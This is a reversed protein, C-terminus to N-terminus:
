RPPSRRHAPHPQWEDRREAIKSRRTTRRRSRRRRALAPPTRLPGPAPTLRPAPATSGAGTIVITSRALAAVPQGRFRQRLEGLHTVQEGAGRTLRGFLRLGASSCATPCARRAGDLWISSPRRRSAGVLTVLIRSKCGEARAAPRDLVDIASSARRSQLARTMALQDPALLSLASHWRGITGIALHLRGDRWRGLGLALPLTPKASGLAYVIRKMRIRSMPPPSRSRGPRCTRTCRPRRVSGRCRGALDLVVWLLDQEIRDLRRDVPQVPDLVLGPVDAEPVVALQEAGDVDGQEDDDDAAEEAHRHLGAGDVGADGAHDGAHGAPFLQHDRDQHDDEGEAAGGVAHGFLREREIGQDHRHHDGGPVVREVPAATIRSPAPMPTSPEVILGNAM